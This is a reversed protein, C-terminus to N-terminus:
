GACFWAYVLHECIIAHKSTIAAFRLLLVSVPVGGGHEAQWAVVRERNRGDIDSERGIVNVGKYLPHLHGDIDLSGAQM